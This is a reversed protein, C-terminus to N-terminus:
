FLAALLNFIAIFICSFKVLNLKLLEWAVMNFGRTNFFENNFLIDGNKM